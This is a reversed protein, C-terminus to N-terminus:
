SKLSSHEDPRDCHEVHIQHEEGIDDAVLRYGKELNHTSITEINNNRLYERLKSYLRVYILLNEQSSFLLHPWFLQYSFIGDEPIDLTSLRSYWDTDGGDIDESIVFKEDSDSIDLDENTFSLHLTTGRM